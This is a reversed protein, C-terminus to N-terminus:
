YANWPFPFFSYFKFYLSCSFENGFFESWFMERGERHIPMQEKNNYRFHILLRRSAGHSLDVDAANIGSPSGTLLPTPALVKTWCWFLLLPLLSWRLKQAQTHVHRDSISLHTFANFSIWCLNWVAGQQQLSMPSCLSLLIHLGLATETRMETAGALRLFPLWGSQTKGCVGIPILSFLFSSPFRSLFDWIRVLQIATKERLLNWLYCGFFTGCKRAPRWCQFLERRVPPIGKRKPDLLTM